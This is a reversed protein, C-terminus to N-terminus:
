AKKYVIHIKDQERSQSLHLNLITIEIIFYCSSELSFVYTHIHAQKYTDTYQLTVQTKQKFIFHPERFIMYIYGIKKMENKDINYDIDYRIYQSDSLKTVKM